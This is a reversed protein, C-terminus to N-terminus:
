RNILGFRLIELKWGKSDLKGLARNRYLNSVSQILYMFLDKLLFFLFHYVDSCWYKKTVICFLHASYSVIMFLCFCGVMFYWFLHNFCVCLPPPDLRCDALARKIQWHGKLSQHSLRAALNYTSMGCKYKCLQVTILLTTPIIKGVLCKATLILPFLLCVVRNEPHKIWM